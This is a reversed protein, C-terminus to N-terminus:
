LDEGRVDSALAHADLGESIAFRSVDKYVNKLANKSFSIVSTKKVFDDVSLPSFFRSTGGTPLVHNPGALYDGVSEPTYHGLFMAGANKIKPMVEFASDCAIELHEPAIENCIRVANDMNECVIIKSFNKLSKDLIEKRTLNEYFHRIWDKVKIALDYSPTVLVGSALEDHEAQSLLDAAVYKPNATDDAIILIDSPGAISDIDCNGYVEKKALAVYINGPGVIKDVKPIMTTGYAMAAISHAGGVQYIEDVGAIYAAALVTKNLGDDKAPTCMIIKKVGAVKAPIANMFVSSPYSAKGGPVYIGITELARVRQGLIEGNDKIDLWTNQKQKAHFEEIRQASLKLTSQLLPDISEYAQKMVSVDVKITSETVFNNEWMKIYKFLADNGNELVDVVIKKTDLVYKSNDVNGRDKLVRLFEKENEIIEIM